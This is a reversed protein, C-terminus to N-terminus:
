ANVDAGRELLIQAIKDYGRAYTAQLANGYYRGQANVDAGRELLIQAIKDYGETYTAQLANSDEGGRSPM